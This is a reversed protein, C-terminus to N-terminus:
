GHSTTTVRLGGHTRRQEIQRSWSFSPNSGPFVLHEEYQESGFESEAVFVGRVTEVLESFDASKEVIAALSLHPYDAAAGLDPCGSSLVVPLALGAERIRAVLEMGTLYPMNQDTLLLDYRTKFLAKWAEEGDTAEDVQYGARSLVVSYLYRTNEDDDAVLIRRKRSSRQSGLSFFSETNM